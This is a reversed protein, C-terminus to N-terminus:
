PGEGMRACEELPLEWSLPPLEGRGKWGCAATSPKQPMFSEM